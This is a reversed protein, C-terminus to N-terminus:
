KQSLALIRIKTKKSESQCSFLPGFHHECAYTHTYMNTCAHAHTYSHTHMHSHMAYIDMNTHTNTYMSKHTDTDTHICMHTSGPWQWCHKFYRSPLFNLTKNSYQYCWLKLFHLKFLYISDTTVLQPPPHSILSLSGPFSGPDHVYRYRVPSSYCFLLGKGLTM